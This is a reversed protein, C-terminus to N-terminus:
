PRLFSRYEAWEQSESSVGGSEPHFSERMAPDMPRRLARPPVEVARGPRRLGHGAVHGRRLAGPAVVRPLRGPGPGLFRRRPRRVRRHGGSHQRSRVPRPPARDILPSFASLHLDWHLADVDTLDEGDCDNDVGDYPEELNGPYAGPDDDDCDGDCSSHGDLDGDEPTLDADDDDAPLDVAIAQEGHQELLAVVRHWYWASGGAGPILLFTM